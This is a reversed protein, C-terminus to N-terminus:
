EYDFFRRLIFHCIQVPQNIDLLPIEIPQDPKQDCALAIISEDRPFLLPKNLSPRHLEIKPFAEEKFGEVLIIDLDEQDFYALQQYLAPDVPIEYESIIARRRRSVLMVTNAGAKRLRYSDKGPYDIDFEHHGHKILGVRIDQARLLPILKTLLTTKGTGSFAAFGLLPIRSQVM